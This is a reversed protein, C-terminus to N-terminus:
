HCFVFAALIIYGQGAPHTIRIVFNAYMEILCSLFGHLYFKSFSEAPHTSDESRTHYLSDVAFSGDTQFSRTM